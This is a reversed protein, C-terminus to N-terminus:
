RPSMGLELPTACQLVEPEPTAEPLVFRSILRALEQAQQQLSESAAASEEVLASNQQTVQDIRAVAVNIQGIGEKQALTAASIETMAYSAQRISSVTRAITDGADNVMKAGAQVQAVSDQILSKIQQAAEASRIALMRVESAVVAFGRGQEGARAAEIAANLALINTQFAIGDIVDIIDVIRDSSQEIGRMTSQVQGMATGGEQAVAAATSALSEARRAAAASAVVRGTIHELSAATEQLKSATEETRASLDANGMAIESTATRISHASARVQAVLTRLAEQMVALSMLMRGAEDREHGQIEHRLDLNAVRNATASATAIPRTISRMLWWALGGGLVLALASFGLLALRARDSWQAIERDRADIANRQWQTLAGLSTQLTNTAPLFRNSYVLHIRATLGSDRAAVLETRALMFDKAAAQIRALLEREAPQQLQQDLEAMLRDYNEQTKAIDSGLIEGVEPESSLAVAKYRESNIAQARYADAVLREAAMSHQVMGKTADNIRSLSWIGMMAGVLGLLLVLLFASLLRRGLSSRSM